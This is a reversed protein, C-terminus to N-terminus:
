FCFFQLPRLSSRAGVQVHQCPRLSSRAGQSLEPLTQISFFDRDVAGAATINPLTAKVENVRRGWVGRGLRAELVEDAWLDVLIDLMPKPCVTFGLMFSVSVHPGPVGRLLVKSPSDIFM